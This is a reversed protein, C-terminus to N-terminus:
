PIRLKEVCSSLEEVNVTETISSDRFSSYLDVIDPDDGRKQELDAFFKAKKASRVRSLPRKHSRSPSPETLSTTVKLYNFANEIFDRTKYFIFTVIGNRELTAIVRYTHDTRNYLMCISNDRKQTKNYSVIPCVIGNDDRAFIYVDVSYMAQLNYLAKIGPLFAFSNSRLNSESLMKHIRERHNAEDDDLSLSYLFADIFPVGNGEPSITVLNTHESFNTSFTEM